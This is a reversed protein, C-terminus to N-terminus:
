MVLALDELVRQLVPISCASREVRGVADRAAEPSAGFGSGMLFLQLLEAAGRPDILVDHILDNPRATLEASSFIGKMGNDGGVGVKAARRVWLIRERILVSYNNMRESRRKRPSPLIAALRAAEQLGINRAAAEDYYHCVSETGYIGPGNGCEPVAQPMVTACDSEISLFIM